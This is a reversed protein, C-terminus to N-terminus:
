VHSTVAAEAARAHGPAKRVKSDKLRRFFANHLGLEYQTSVYYVTGGVLGQLERLRDLVLGLGEHLSPVSQSSALRSTKKPGSEGAMDSDRRSREKKYM